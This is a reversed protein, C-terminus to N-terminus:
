EPAVVHDPRSSVRVGASPLASLLGRAAAEGGGHTRSFLSQPVRAGLGPLSVAACIALRCSSIVEPRRCLAPSLAIWATLRLGIRGTALWEGRSTDAGAPVSSRALQDPPLQDGDVEALASAWQEAHVAAALGAIRTNRRKSTGPEPAGDAGGRTGVM